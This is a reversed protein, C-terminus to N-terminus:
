DKQLNTLKTSRKLCDATKMISKEVKKENENIEVRIQIIEKRRRAKPKNQEEKGLNKSHSNLKNIQSM